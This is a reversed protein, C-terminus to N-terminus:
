EEAAPAGFAEVRNKGRSKSLYLARDAAEIITEPTEQGQQFASVGISVTVAGLPQTKGHPFRMRLVRRRIREAIATAEELTTQPLLICFEEGGYRSAVDAGRLASKLCQATMELALDGAQHGNRDNYLKFDDIDIMMFSMPFEQRKSRKLEEALREILYRRNLLGTLPDTISMIQFLNAKEQWEARDLALAMQPAISEILSLDIDDYTGGGAKDTVNLVGVKRGGVSIPYSIFSKTKYDRDEPAPTHGASEVDRVVLPRGEFLVSGAVGEGMRVRTERAVEARPGVAAKVSLENTAEDLLLLSSREAHLLDSSMRLIAEYTEGPNVTNIQEGFSQLHEAFRVRQELEHRLRLVELPLAIERCYASVARRKEDTLQSDGVLLAAKVEDGVILPFLEAMKETVDALQKRITGAPKFGDAGERLALSTGAKATVFLRADKSGIEVHVPIDKLRGTGCAHVFTGHDRLLLALSTLQHKGALVELAAQCADMFESEAPFYRNQLLTRRASADQNVLQKEPAPESKAREAKIPPESAEKERVALPASLATQKGREDFRKDRGFEGLAEEIRRALDDLDQRSAFIVNKFIDSSLLDQLDGVRFREALSRYDASTLFARGGIVALQKGAGPSVPMAFCHLGAHCRYHTVEDAKLAREFAVGCYPDCLQVHRPSSQFAQCISNNNSVELAPPQHGEVLLVSLGSAAALSEQADAWGTPTQHNQTQGEYRMLVSADAITRFTM